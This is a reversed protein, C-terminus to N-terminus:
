WRAAPWSWLPRCVCMPQVAFSITSGVTSPEFADPAPYPDPIVGTTEDPTTTGATTTASGGGSTPEGTSGEGTGADTSGGASASASTAGDDGCAGLLMTM